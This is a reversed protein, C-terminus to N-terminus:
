RTRTKRLVLSTLERPGEMHEGARRQIDIHELGDQNHLLTAYGKFQGQFSIFDLNVLREKKSNVRGYDGNSPTLSGAVVM